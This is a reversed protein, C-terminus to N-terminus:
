AVSGIWQLIHTPPMQLGARLKKIANALIYVLAAFKHPEKRERRALDRLPNNIGKFGLTTYYRVAFVKAPSLECFLVVDHICFDAFRMGRKGGAIGADAVQREPLVHGTKPHCDRKWGHQFKKESAGAEKQLVYDRCEKDEETGSNEIEETLAELGRGVRTMLAERGGLFNVFPGIGRGADPPLGLILEDATYKAKKDQGGNGTEVDLLLWCVLGEKLAEAKLKKLM